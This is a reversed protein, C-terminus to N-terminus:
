RIWIVASVLHVVALFYIKRRDYRTAARRFHKLKNFFSEIRNCLRYADADNRVHIKRNGKSPIVAEAEAQQIIEGCSM